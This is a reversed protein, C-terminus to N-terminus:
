LVGGFQWKKKKSRFIGKKKVRLFAMKKNKVELL